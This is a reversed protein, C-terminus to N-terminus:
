TRSMAVPAVRSTLRALPAPPAPAALPLAVTPKSEEITKVDIFTRL